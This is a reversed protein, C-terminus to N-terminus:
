SFVPKGVRRQYSEAQCSRMFRYEPLFNRCGPTLISLCTQRPPIPMVCGQYRYVTKVMKRLLVYSQRLLLLTQLLSSKGLGNLGSFLNFTSLPFSADLLTKFRQIRIFELM